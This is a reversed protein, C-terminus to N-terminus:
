NDKDTHIKSMKKEIRINGSSSYYIRCLVYCYKKGIKWLLIKYKYGDEREILATAEGYYM